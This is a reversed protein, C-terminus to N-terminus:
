EKSVNLANLAASCGWLMVGHKVTPLPTRKRFPRMKKRRYVFQQGANGFLEVKTEDTWLVNDRSLSFGGNWM